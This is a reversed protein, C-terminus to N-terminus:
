STSDPTKPLHNLAFWDDLEGKEYIEDGNHTQFLRLENTSDLAWKAKEIIKIRYSRFIKHLGAKEWHPSDYTLQSLRQMGLLGFRGNDAIGQGDLSELYDMMKKSPWWNLLRMADRFSYYEGAKGVLEFGYGIHQNNELWKKMDGPEFIWDDGTIQKILDGEKLAQRAAEGVGYRLKHPVHIQTEEWKPDDVDLEALMYMGMTGFRGNGATGKGVTSELYDMLNVVAQTNLLAINARFTNFRSSHNWISNTSTTGKTSVWAPTTAPKQLNRQNAGALSPQGYHRPTFGRQAIRISM